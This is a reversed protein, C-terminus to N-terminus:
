KSWNGVITKAGTSKARCIINSLGVLTNLPGFDVSDQWATLESRAGTVSDITGVQYQITGDGYVKKVKCYIGSERPDEPTQVHNYPADEYAGKLNIISKPVTLPVASSWSGYNIDYVPEPDDPNGDCGQLQVGVDSLDAIGERILMDYMWPAHRFLVNSSSFFICDVLEIEDEENLQEFQLTRGDSIAVLKWRYYCARGEYDELFGAIFDLYIKSDDTPDVTDLLDTPVSADTLRARQIIAPNPRPPVSDVLPDYPLIIHRTLDRSFSKLSVDFLEPYVIPPIDVDIALYVCGDWDYTKAGVPWPPYTPSLVEYYDYQPKIYGTVYRNNEKITMGVIIPKVTANVFINGGATADYQMYGSQLPLVKEFAQSVLTVEKYKGHPTQTNYYDPYVNTAYLRVDIRMGEFKEPMKPYHIAFYSYRTFGGRACYHYTTYYNGPPDEHSVSYLYRSISIIREISLLPLARWSQQGNSDITKIRLDPSGIRGWNDDYETMYSNFPEPVYYYDWDRDKDAETRCYLQYGPFPLVGNKRAILILYKGGFDPSTAMTYVCMDGIAYSKTPSYEDLLLEGGAWPISFSNIGFLTAKEAKVLYDILSQDTDHFWPAVPKTEWTGWSLNLPWQDRWVAINSMVDLHGGGDGTAFEHTNLYFELPYTVGAIHDFIKRMDALMQHQIEFCEKGNIYDQADHRKCIDLNFYLATCNEHVSDVLIMYADNSYRKGTVVVEFHEDDSNILHVRFGVKIVQYTASDITLLKGVQNSVECSHTKLSFRLSNLYEETYSEWKGSVASYIGRNYTSYGNAHGSDALAAIPFPYVSYFHYGTSSAHFGPNTYLEWHGGGGSTDRWIERLWMVFKGALTSRAPYDTISAGGNAFGTNYHIDGAPTGLESPWYIVNPIRGMSYKWTRRWTGKSLPLYWDVEDLYCIDDAEISVWKSADWVGSNTHQTTCRWLGGNYSVVRGVYYTGVNTQWPIITTDKWFPPVAYGDQDQRTSSNKVRYNLIDVPTYPTSTDFYWDYSGIRKLLLEFGSGNCGWCPDSAVAVAPFISEATDYDGVTLTTGNICNLRDVYNQKYVSDVELTMRDELYSLMWMLMNQYAGNMSLHSCIDDPAETSFGDENSWSFWFTGELPIYREETGNPHSDTPAAYHETYNDDTSRGYNEQGSSVDYREICQFMPRLTDPKTFLDRTIEVKDGYRWHVRNSDSYKIPPIQEKPDTQIPMLLDTPVVACVVKWTLDEFSGEDHVTACWFRGSNKDLYHYQDGIYARVWGGENGYMVKNASWKGGRPPICLPSNVIPRAASTNSGWFWFGAAAYWDGGFQCHVTGNPQSIDITTDKDDQDALTIICSSGSIEFSKIRYVGNNNGCSALTIPMGVQFDSKKSEVYPVTITTETKATINYPAIWDGNYWICPGETQWGFGDFGTGSLTSTDFDETDHFRANVMGSTWFPKAGNGYWLQYLESDYQGTQSNICTSKRPDNESPAGVGSANIFMVESWTGASWPMKDPTANISLHLWPSGDKGPRNEKTAISETISTYLYYSNGVRVRSNLSYTSGELWQQVSGKDYPMFKDIMLFMLKRIDELVNHHLEVGAVVSGSKTKEIPYSPM